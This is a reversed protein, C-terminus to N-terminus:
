KAAIGNAAYTELMAQTPTGLRYYSVKQGKKVRSNLYIAYGEKRLSSIMSSPNTVGFRTQLQSPTLTGKQLATIVKDKKSKVNSM